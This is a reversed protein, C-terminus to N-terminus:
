REWLHEEKEEGITAERLAAPHERESARTDRGHIRSDLSLTVEDLFDQLSRSYRTM